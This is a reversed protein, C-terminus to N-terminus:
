RSTEQVSLGCRTSTRSTMISEKTHGTNTLLADYEDFPTEPLVMDIDTTFRAQSAPVAWGGVLMYPLGALWITRHTDVLESQHEPLSM